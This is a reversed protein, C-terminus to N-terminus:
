PQEPGRAPMPRLRCSGARLFGQLNDERHLLAVTTHKRPPFAGVLRSRPAAERNENTITAFTLEILANMLRSVVVSVFGGAFFTDRIEAFTGSRGHMARACSTLKQIISIKLVNIYYKPFQM